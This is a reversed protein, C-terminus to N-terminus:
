CPLVEPWPQAISQIEAPTVRASPMLTEPLVPWPAAVMRLLGVDVKAYHYTTEISAHRLVTGIQHLTAGERLMATAASHRLVHAGCSPADVGARAIARRVVSSVLPSNIPGDPATAKMFVRPGSVRPREHELYAIIADGVEQPLPLWVERRSKGSVRLRAGEWDVDHLTLEAIDGARLGLRSALLIIAKDRRATTTRDDCSALLRDVDAAALYRPLSSLRWDAITPISADLGAACRETTALFRLFMRVSTVTIKAKAIGHQRARELVFGRLDGAQYSQTGDGLTHVLSEIVRGYTTLTSERVGRHALMWQEFERLLEPKTLSTSPSEPVVGRELLFRLFRRSASREETQAGCRHRHRGITALHEHFRRVTDRDIEHIGLRESTVWDTFREVGRILGRATARKYGAKALWDTFDDLYTGAPGARLRAVVAPADLYDTLM